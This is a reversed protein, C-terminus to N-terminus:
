KLAFARALTVAWAAGIIAMLALLVYAVRVKSILQKIFCFYVGFVASIFAFFAVVVLATCTAAAAPQIYFSEFINGRVFAVVSTTMGCTPCPLNYRQKFGCPGLLLGIDIVGTAALAPVAFLAAIVALVAASTLREHRTARCIIKRKKSPQSSQM